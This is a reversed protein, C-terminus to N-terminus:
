SGGSGGNGGTASVGGAGGRGGSGANGGMGGGTATTPTRALCASYTNSASVCCAVDDGAQTCFPQFDNADSVVRRDAASPCPSGDANEQCCSLFTLTGEAICCDETPQVRGTGDDCVAVKQCANETMPDANVCTATVGEGLSCASFLQAGLVGVALWGVTGLALRSRLTRRSRPRSSM